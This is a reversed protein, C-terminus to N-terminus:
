LTLMGYLIIFIVRRRRIGPEEVQSLLLPQRRAAAKIKKDKTEANLDNHIICVLSIYRHEEGYIDKNLCERDPM